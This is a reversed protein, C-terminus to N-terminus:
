VGSFREMNRIRIEGSILKPLLADRLAAIARTEVGLTVQEKVLPMMVKSMGDLLDRPPILAYAQSLHARKIHGMTTTKDMAIRRFEEVYHGTWLLYFWKPYNASSVKFLHQNLIGDGGTWLKIMLTGSWSFIVDGDSVHFESPTELRARDSGETIGERLERIKIVPLCPKGEEARYKQWAVGNLYDAIADLPRLEWGEPIWGLRSEVFRSPFLRRIHEPLPKRRNGLARRRAAKEALADPIPQDAELANDIVPDFDVFWSKFLARAMEELTRSMRRNLEIKDDLTGLIHAIARQTELKPLPILLEDFSRTTITSFVTGYSISRMRSISARLAYYLYNEDIRESALLGYCTQNFAMDRGLQAIAGVTGRATIVVTGRPLVKAASNELGERTIKESTEFIYRGTVSSIDKATAWSIDGGWYAPEDRRPTGGLVPQAVESVPVIEVEHHM